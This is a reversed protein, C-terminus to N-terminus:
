TKRFGGYDKSPAHPKEEEAKNLEAAAQKTHRMQADREMLDAQLNVLDQDGLVVAITRVFAFVSLSSAVFIVGRRLSPWGHMLTMLPEVAILFLVTIGTVSFVWMLRRTVEKFADAVSKVEQVDLQEVALQPLGRGLRFLVAGLLISLFTLVETRLDLLHKPEVLLAAMGTAACILLQLWWKM